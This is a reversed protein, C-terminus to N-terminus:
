ERGEYYIYFVLGGGLLLTSAMLAGDWATREGYTVIAAWASYAIWVSFWTWMFGSKATENM